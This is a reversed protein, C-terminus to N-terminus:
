PVSVRLPIYAEIYCLELGAYTDEQLPNVKEMEPNRVSQSWPHPITWGTVSLSASSPGPQSSRFPPPDECSEDDGCM